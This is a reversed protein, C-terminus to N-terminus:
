LVGNRGAVQGEDDAHVREHAAEAAAACLQEEAAAAAPKFKFKGGSESKFNGGIYNAGNGSLEPLSSHRRHLRTRETHDDWGPARQVEVQGQRPPGRQQPKPCLQVQFAHKRILYIYSLIVSFLTVIM